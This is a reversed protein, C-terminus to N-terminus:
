TRIDMSEASLLRNIENFIIGIEVRLSRLAALEKADLRHRIGRTELIMEKRFFRNLIRAKRLCFNLRMILDADARLESRGLQFERIRTAM